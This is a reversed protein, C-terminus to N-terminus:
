SEFAKVFHRFPTNSDIMGRKEVCQETNFFHRSYKRTPCNDSGQYYCGECSPGSKILILDVDKDDNSKYIQNSM